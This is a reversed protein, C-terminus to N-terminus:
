KESKVKEKRFRYQLKKWARKTDIDIREQSGFVNSARQVYTLFNGSRKGSVRDNMGKYTYLHYIKRRSIRIGKEQEDRILHDAKSYMREYFKAITKARIRVFQGDFSFGLFSIINTRHPDDATSQNQINGGNYYYVQTKKEQLELGPVSKVIDKIQDVLSTNSDNETPIICIFDDCYRRYFGRSNQCLRNMQQDFCTLYINAYVASIASGQPIGYRHQNRQLLKEKIARFEEPTFLRELNKAQTRTIKKIALIDEYDIFSYRTISKYVSYHDQPLREVRLLECLREKLYCHDIKDFYSSFDGIVIICKQHSRIKDFVEKAFHINSKGPMNTRYAIACKGISRENMFENYKCNLVHAYYEYIYRDIHASYMIGRKKPDDRHPAGNHLYEKPYKPMEQVYHIFPYFAHKQVYSSDEVKIRVKQWPIKVDFHPYQKFKYFRMRHSHKM